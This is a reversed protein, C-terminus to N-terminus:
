PTGLDIHFKVTLGHEAAVSEIDEMVGAKDDKVSYPESSGDIFTVVVEAWHSKHRQPFDHDYVTVEHPTKGYFNELSTRLERRDESSPTIIQGM